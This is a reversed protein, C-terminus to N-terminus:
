GQNKQPTGNVYVELRRCAKRASTITPFNEPLLQKLAAPLPMRMHEQMM